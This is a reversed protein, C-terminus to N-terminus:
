EVALVAVTQFWSVYLLTFGWEFSVSNCCFHDWSSVNDTSIHGSQIKLIARLLGISTPIAPPDALPFVESESRM